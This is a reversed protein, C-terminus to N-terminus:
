AFGAFVAYARMILLGARLDVRCAPFGAGIVVRAAARTLSVVRVGASYDSTGEPVGHPTFIARPHPDAAPQPQQRKAAPGPRDHM